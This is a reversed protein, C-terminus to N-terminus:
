LVFTSNAFSGAIDPFAWMEPKIRPEIAKACGAFIRLANLGVKLYIPFLLATTDILGQVFQVESTLTLECLEPAAISALQHRSTVTGDHVLKRLDRKM